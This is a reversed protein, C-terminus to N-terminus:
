NLGCNVSSKSAKTSHGMHRAAIDGTLVCLDYELNGVIGILHRM